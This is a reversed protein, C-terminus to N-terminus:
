SNYKVVPLQNVRSQVIYKLVKSMEVLRTLMVITPLKFEWIMRWFDGVTEALPGTHHLVCGASVCLQSLSYLYHKTFLHM